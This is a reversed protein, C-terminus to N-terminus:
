YMNQNMDIYYSGTNTAALKATAVFELFAESTTSEEQFLTPTPSMIAVSSGPIKIYKAADILNTYYNETTGGKGYDNIGYIM